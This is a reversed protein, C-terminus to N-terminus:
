GLVILGVGKNSLIAQGDMKDTVFKTVSHCHFFDFGKSMFVKVVLHLISFFGIFVGILKEIVIVIIINVASAIIPFVSPIAYKLVLRL